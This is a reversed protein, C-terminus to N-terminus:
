LREEHSQPEHAKTASLTAHIGKSAPVMSPVASLLAQTYPHKPDRYVSDIDGMEVIEGKRMVAIRDVLHRVIRLDHTIFVYSLDLETWLSRLQGVIQAQVSVDLASVAEDFVVLKPELILARATVVRQRQGGSLQHPYRDILSSELGVRELMAAARDLAETRTGLRHIWVPEAVQAGVTIQPNLAALPNQQVLSTKKRFEKWNGSSRESHLKGEFEVDGVSPTSLGLLLRGLTSKGSGSEGVLGLREHRQLKIQVSNVATNVNPKAFLGSKSTFSKTLETTQLITSEQVADGNADKDQQKTKSNNLPCHPQEDLKPKAVEANEDISASPGAQAAVLVADSIPEPPDTDDPDISPMCAILARTYPHTANELLEATPATELIQGGYMVATRDAMQAIVGLDHSVILMAMGTEARLEELLSLIQAQTTVDLATTPEDAILLEPRAALAHAIMVRQNMGGSFQHPYAEMRSAAQDIGVRELLRLAELRADNGKLGQHRFLASQIYNGVKHVPNLCSSPDQFIMAIQSGSKSKDSTAQSQFAVDGGTQVVGRPLAGAIAYCTMSKASGSEGVLGLSEGANVQLSVGKILQIGQTATGVKLDTVNLLTNM